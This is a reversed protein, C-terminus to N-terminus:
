GILVDKELAKVLSFLADNFPTKIGHQKGIEIIKGNISDIETKKGKQFSQLMSSYNESTDKIVRKTMKILDADILKVGVTRAVASSEKCTEEVLKELLPHELLCGNKCKLMGTIPNISSNIITKIWIESCINTSINTDIDAQKFVSALNQVRKTLKDDLEGLITKGLGTHKIIGPKTFLAGHTTVGAVIKKQNIIKGIKELNNLGNQLSLVITNDSLIPKIMRAANETDYSKVTLIILDPSKNNIQDVSDVAEVNVTINTKGTIKLGKKTIRTIHPTRGVLSVHNRKSLFAGFLSGIAGAGMVIINM